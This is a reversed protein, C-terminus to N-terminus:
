KFTAKLACWKTFILWKFSFSVGLAEKAYMFALKNDGENVLIETLKKLIYGKRQICFASVETKESFLIGKEVTRLQFLLKQKNSTLTSANNKKSNDPINHLAVTSTDYIIETAKDLARLYIDRDPEYRLNEDMGDISNYLKTAIVWCNQHPFGTANLMESVTVPFAVQKLRPDNIPLTEPLSEVWVNPVHTGDHTVAKQNAFYFDATSKELTASARRLFDDDIWWDDDDLFCIFKGKAIDVGQNRAFCHGHGRSREILNVYTVNSPSGQELQNYAERHQANTGDNVVIVELSQYSQGLVSDLAKKFEIPRNRTPIVVSFLPNIDNITMRSTKGIALIHKKSQSSKAM